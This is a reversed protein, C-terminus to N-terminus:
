SNLQDLHQRFSDSETQPFVRFNTCDVKDLLKRSNPILDNVLSFLLFREKALAHALQIQHNNMLQENPIVILPKQLSLTELISGAGAHSIVLSANSIEENLTDKFKFNQIVFDDTSCSDPTYEGRGSQIHLGQYGSERLSNIFNSSSTAKIL